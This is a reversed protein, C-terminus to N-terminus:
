IFMTTRANAQEKKKQDYRMKNREENYRIFDDTEKIWRNVTPYAERVMLNHGDVHKGAVALEIVQDQLQRAADGLAVVKSLLDFGKTDDKPILEKVKAVGENYTRRHEALDGRIKQISESAENKYKALMVNRIDIATERAHDIMDNALQIRANNVKVIRDLNDRSDEMENLSVLIIVIMFVLVLSFGLGMRWGIKMNKFM